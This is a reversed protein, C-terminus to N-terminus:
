ANRQPKGDEKRGIDKSMRSQNIIADQALTDFVASTLPLDPVPTQTNVVTKMTLFKTSVLESELQPIM